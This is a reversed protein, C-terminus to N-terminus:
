KPSYAPFTFEEPKVIKTQIFNEDIAPHYMM